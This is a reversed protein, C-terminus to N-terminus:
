KPPEISIKTGQDVLDLTWTAPQRDPQPPEALRARLVDNTARDIWLDVGVPSGQLTYATLPGVVSNEVDAKIHYVPRDRLSDDPLRVANTVRDMVPGIGGQNDFLISPDYQFEAAAPGWKGTILDTTWWQGGIIILNMTVTVGKLVKVKFGTRVRNPRVLDGRAELLQITQAVDIYTEGDVKLFFRVTPTQALKASALKLIDTAALTPTPTPAM